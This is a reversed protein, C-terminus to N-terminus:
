LFVGETLLHQFIETELEIVRGDSRDVQLRGGVVSRGELCINVRWPVLMDWRPFLFIMKLCVKHFPNTLEWLNLRQEAKLFVVSSFVRESTAAM